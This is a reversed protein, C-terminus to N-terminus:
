EWAAPADSFEDESEPLPSHYLRCGIQPAPRDDLGVHQPHISQDKCCVWGVFYVYKGKYLAPFSRGVTPFHPKRGNKKKEWDALNSQFSSYMGLAEMIAARRLYSPLKYFKEDFHYKPFPTKATKHVLHELAMQRAQSSPINKESDGKIDKLMPWEHAAVDLLYHLAAQYVKATKSFENESRIIKVKYSTFIQM